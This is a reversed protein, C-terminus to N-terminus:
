RALRGILQHDRDQGACVYLWPGAVVIGCLVRAPSPVPRRLLLDPTGGAIPVRALEEEGAVYAFRDDVAVYVWDGEALTTTAGGLRATRFLAGDRGRAVWYVWSGAEVAASPGAITRSSPVNAVLSPAGGDIPVAVIGAGIGSDEWPMLRDEAVVYVGHRGVSAGTRHVVGLERAPGCPKSARVLSDDRLGAGYLFEEDVAQVIGVVACPHHVAPGGALPITWYGMADSMYLASSDLGVLSAGNVDRAFPDLAFAARSRADSADSADPASSRSKGCAGVLVALAIALRPSM